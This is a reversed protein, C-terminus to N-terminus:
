CGQYVYGASGVPSVNLDRLVISLNPYDSCGKTFDQQRYEILFLLNGYAAQYSDCESYRNCEEVVAFDTGMTEVNPLLESSNKQAIALGNSHAVASLLAMMSVNNASNLLGNSRSYSDLNDVEVADFGDANCKAIWSGVVALLADRKAATSTDLLMEGWDQDIVPSGSSSRLILDPHETTWFDEEDPQIQFGNVYCINYLGPAPTSNRDRSVVQVGTPPIYAGGIQYDFSANATPLRVAATGGSVTGGNAAGGNTGGNGVGGRAVTGGTAAGGTTGGNGAGGRAVTGSANINGAAGGNTGGNGAGGRAVTGSANINGAAGGNTGGNGAGGRAVTGSANINGAAGGNTGGNGAGGRAVTGGTAAGGNTGGNGAGGRAVTGGTAAGGNTGGSGDGGRAVTGGPSSSSGGSGAAPAGGLGSGHSEQSSGACGFVVTWAVFLCDFPQIRM